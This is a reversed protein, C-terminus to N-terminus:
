HTQSQQLLRSVQRFHEVTSRLYLLVHTVSRLVHHMPLCPIAARLEAQAGEDLLGGESQFAMQLLAGFSSASAGQPALSGPMQLPKPFLFWLNGCVFCACLWAAQEAATGPRSARCPSCAPSRRQPGARAGSCGAELAAQVACVGRSSGSLLAGGAEQIPM